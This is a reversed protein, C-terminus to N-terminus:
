SAFPGPTSTTIMVVFPGAYGDERGQEADDPEAYAEMVESRMLSALEDAEAMTPQATWKITVTIVQEFETPM